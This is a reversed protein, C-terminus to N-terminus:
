EDGTMEAVMDAVTIRRTKRVQDHEGVKDTWKGLGKRQTEAVEHKYKPDTPAGYTPRGAQRWEELNALLFDLRRGPGTRNIERIMSAEIRDQAPKYSKHKIPVKARSTHKFGPPVPTDIVSKKKYMSLGPGLGPWALRSDKTPGKYRALRKIRHHLVKDAM